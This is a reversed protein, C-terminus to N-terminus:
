QFEIPFSKKETKIGREREDGEKEWMRKGNRENRWGITM